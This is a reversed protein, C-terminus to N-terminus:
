LQISFLNSIQLMRRHDADIHQRIDDCVAALRFCIVLKKIVVSFTSTFMYARYCACMDGDGVYPLKSLIDVVNLGRYADSAIKRM